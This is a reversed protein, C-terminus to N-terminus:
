GRAQRRFGIWKTGGYQGGCYSWYGVFGGPPVVSRLPNWPHLSDWPTLSDWFFYMRGWYYTGGRETDCRVSSSNEMWYGYIINVEINMADIRGGNDGYRGIWHHTESDRWLSMAGKNTVYLANIYNSDAETNLNAVYLQSEDGRAMTAVLTTVLVACAIILSKM